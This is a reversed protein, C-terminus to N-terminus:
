KLRFLIPVDVWAPIPTDGQRAPVFTWRQVANLATQDLVSSSSSKELRVAEPRGEPSVLVRVIVTGQLKLQRAVSPYPPAPNRLYDADFIPGIMPLGDVKAATEISGVPVKEEQTGISPSATKEEQLLSPSSPPAPTETKQETESPQEHSEIVLTPRPSPTSKVIQRPRSAQRVPSLQESAILMLELSQQPQQVIAGKHEHLSIVFWGASAHVIFSFFLAVTLPRMRRETPGGPTQASSNTTSLAIDVM